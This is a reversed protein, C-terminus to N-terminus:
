QYWGPTDLYAALLDDFEPTEPPATLPALANAIARHLGPMNATFSAQSAFKSGVTTTNLNEGTGVPQASHALCNSNWANIVDQLTSAPM